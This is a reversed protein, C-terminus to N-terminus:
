LRSGSRGALATTLATTKILSGAGTEVKPLSLTNANGVRTDFTQKNEFLFDVKQSHGQAIPKALISFKM